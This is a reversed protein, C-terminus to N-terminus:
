LGGLRISVVSCSCDRRFGSGQLARYFNCPEIIVLQFFRWFFFFPPFAILILVIWHAAQKPGALYFLSKPESTFSSVLSIRENGHRLFLETGGLRLGCCSNRIYLPQSSLSNQWCFLHHVREAYEISISRLPGPMPWPQWGLLTLVRTLCPGLICSGSSKDRWLLKDWCALRLPLSNISM